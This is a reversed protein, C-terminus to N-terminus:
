ETAEFILRERDLEMTLRYSFEDVSEIFGLIVLAQVFIESRKQLLIDKRTFKLLFTTMYKLAYAPNVDGLLEYLVAQEASLPLQERMKYFYANLTLKERLFDVKERIVLANTDNALDMEYTLNKLDQYVPSQDDVFVEQGFELQDCSVLLSFQNRYRRNERAIYGADIYSDLLKDVNKVESFSKKIDRLIVEDHLALYNILDQFFSQKTLKTPNVTIIMFVTYCFFYVRASFCLAIKLEYSSVCIFKFDNVLESLKKQFHLHFVQGSTAVLHYVLSIM